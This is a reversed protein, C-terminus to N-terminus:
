KNLSELWSDLNSQSSKLENDLKQSEVKFENSLLYEKSQREYEELRDILKKMEQDIILKLEEGKLQVIDKLETIKKHTFANPDKLLGGLEKLTEEVSECSKKASKHVSGFDLNAIGSELIAELVNNPHFGNTPIQHEVGCKECRIADNPENSVHKECASHYCPLIVPSEYTEHCIMCKLINIIIDM